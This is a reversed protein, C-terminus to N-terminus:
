LQTFSNLHPRVYLLSDVRETRGRSIILISIISLIRSTANLSRRAFFSCLRMGHILSKLEVFKVFIDALHTGRIRVIFFLWHLLSNPSKEYFDLGIEAECIFFVAHLCIYYKELTSFHIEPFFIWTLNGVKLEKEPRVTQVNQCLNLVRQVIRLWSFSTIKLFLSWDAM